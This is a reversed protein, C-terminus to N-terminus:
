IVKFFIQGTVGTSPLSTGYSNTKVVPVGNLVVAIGNEGLYLNSKTTADSKAIIENADIELHAQSRTGGVVLAPGNDATGSADTTKSLVLTGTVTGGSLPLAYSSYNNSHLVTNWDMWTNNDGNKNRFYLNTTNYGGMIQLRYNQNSRSSFSALIGTAPANHNSYVFYCGNIIDNINQGSGSNWWERIPWVTNQESIKDSVHYIGAKRYYNDSGNTVIVQSVSPNENNSTNSNIYNTHIYNNSDRLVYTSATASTSGHYGDLKDANTATAANGNM